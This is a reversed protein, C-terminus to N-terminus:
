ITQYDSNDGFLEKYKNIVDLKILNDLNSQSVYRLRYYPPRWNSLLSFCEKINKYRDTRNDFYEKYEKNIEELFTEFAVGNEDDQKLLQKQEDTLEM